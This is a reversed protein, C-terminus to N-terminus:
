CVPIHICGTIYAVAIYSTNISSNVRILFKIQLYIFSSKDQINESLLFRIYMCTATILLSLPVSILQFELNWICPSCWLAVNTNISFQLFTNTKPMKHSNRDNVLLFLNSSKFM